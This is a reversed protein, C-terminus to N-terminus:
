KPLEKSGILTVNLGIQCECPVGDVEIITRGNANWGLSGTEFEKRGALMDQGNINVKLSAPAKGRFQARTVPATKKAKEKAAAM